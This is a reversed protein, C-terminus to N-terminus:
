IHPRDVANISCLVYMWFPEKANVDCGLLNNEGKNLLVIIGVTKFQMESVFM